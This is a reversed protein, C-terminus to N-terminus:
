LLPAGVSLMKLGNGNNLESTRGVFGEGLPIFPLLGTRSLFSSALSYSVKCVAGGTGGIITSLNFNYNVVDKSTKVCLHDSPRSSTSLSL